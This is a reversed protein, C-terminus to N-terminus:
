KCKRFRIVGCCSIQLWHSHCYFKQGAHRINYRPLLNQFMLHEHLRYLKPQCEKVLLMETLVRNLLNYHFIYSSFMNWLGFYNVYLTVCDWLSYFCFLDFYEIFSFSFLFNICLCEPLNVHWWWIFIKRLLSLSFSWISVLLCVKTGQTRTVLTKGVNRTTFVSPAKIDYWDKKAYPDSSFYILVFVILLLNLFWRLLLMQYISLHDFSAFSFYKCKRRAERRVRRFISTRGADFWLILLM